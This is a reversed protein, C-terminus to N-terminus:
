SIMLDSLPAPPGRESIDRLHYDPICVFSIIGAACSFTSAFLLLLLLAVFLFSFLEALFGDLLLYQAESHAHTSSETGHDRHPHTHILIGFTPDLHVHLNYFHSSYISIFVLLTLIGLLRKRGDIM